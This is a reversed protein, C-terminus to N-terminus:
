GIYRVMFLDFTETRRRMQHSFDNKMNQECWRVSLWEYILTCFPHISWSHLKVCWCDVDVDVYRLFITM